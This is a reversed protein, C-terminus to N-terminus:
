NTSSSSIRPALLSRPLCGETSMRASMRRNSPSEVVGISAVTARLHRHMYEEEEVEDESKIDEELKPDQLGDELTKTVKDNASVM